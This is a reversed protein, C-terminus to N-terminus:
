GNEQAACSGGSFVAEVGGGSGIYGGDEGSGVDDAGMVDAGGDFGGDDGVADKVGDLGSLGFVFGISM